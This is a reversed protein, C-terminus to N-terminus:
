DNRECDNGCVEFEDTDEEAVFDDNDERIVSPPSLCFKDLNEVVDPLDLPDIFFEQEENEEGNPFSARVSVRYLFPYIHGSCDQFAIAENM